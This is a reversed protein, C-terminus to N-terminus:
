LRPPLHGGVRACLARHEECLRVLLGHLLARSSSLACGLERDDRHLGQVRVQSAAALPTLHRWAKPLPLSM